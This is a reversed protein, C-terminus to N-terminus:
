VGGNVDPETENIIESGGEPIMSVRQISLIGDFVPINRLEVDSYGRATVEADYLAYPQVTSGPTQSLKRDPAPLTVVPTQGSSDTVFSALVVREGAFVKSITCAADEIPLAGRAAFVLFRMTGRHTNESLFEDYDAYDREKYSVTAEGVNDLPRIDAPNNRPTETSEFSRGTLQEDPSTGSVPQETLREAAQPTTVNTAPVNPYSEDSSNDSVGSPEEAPTVNDEPRTTEYTEEQVGEISPIEDYEQGATEEPFIKSFVDSYASFIDETTSDSYGIIQPRREETQPKEAPKGAGQEVYPEPLPPAPQERPATPAAPSEPTSPAPTERPPSSPAAQKETMEPFSPPASTERAATSEDTMEPFSLPSSPPEVPRARSYELLEQKYKEILKKIDDM